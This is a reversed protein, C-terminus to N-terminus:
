GNVIVSPDHAAAVSELRDLRDAARQRVHLERGRPSLRRQLNTSPHEDADSGVLRGLRVREDHHHIEGIAVGEELIVGSGVVQLFMVDAVRAHEDPQRPNTGIRKPVEDDARM